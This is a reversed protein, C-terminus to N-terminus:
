NKKKLEAELKEVERRKRELLKAANLKKKEAKAAAIRLKEKERKEQEKKRDELFQSAKKFVEHKTKENYMVLVYQSGGNMKTNAHRIHQRLEEVDSDEMEEWDESVPYLLTKDVEHYDNYWCEARVIKVKQM